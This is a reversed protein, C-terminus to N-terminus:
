STGNETNGEETTFYYRGWFQSRPTKMKDFRKRITNRKLGLAKEAASMSPYEIGDLTVPRSRLARYAKLKESGGNAHLNKMALERQKERRDTTFAESFKKCLEIRRKPDSWLKKGGESAVAKAESSKMRELMFESHKTNQEETRPVGKMSTTADPSRNFLIGSSLFKDLLIQELAYAERRDAMKVFCLSMSKTEHEDYAKQLNPNRHIGHKLRNRHSSIRAYLDRTSGIYYKNTAWHKLIYVAMHSHVNRKVATVDLQINPISILFEHVKDTTDM